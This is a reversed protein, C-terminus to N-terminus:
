FDDDDDSEGIPKLKVITAGHKMVDALKNEIDRKAPAKKMQKVEAYIDIIGKRDPYKKSTNMRLEVCKLFQDQELGSLQFARGADSCSKRGESQALEYGPITLGQKQAAELAHFKMSKIWPMLIKRSITLGLGIQAPDTM